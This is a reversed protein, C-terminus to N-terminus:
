NVPMVAHIPIQASVVRGLLSLLVIVRDADKQAEFIAECAAFAGGAIRIRSGRTLHLNRALVVFGNEDERSRIGDIVTCPVPAPDLGIRVLDIVGRTSRISRWGAAEADFSVFLYRPFLPAAVTDLRRAHSRRRLYRPFFVEFGQRVLHESALSENRPQTYVAYWSKM